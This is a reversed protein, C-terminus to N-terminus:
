IRVRTIGHERAVKSWLPETSSTFNQPGASLLEVLACLYDPLGNRLHTPEFRCGSAVIDREVRELWRQVIEVQHREIVGALRRVVARESNGAAGEDASLM